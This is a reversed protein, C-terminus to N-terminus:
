NKTDEEDLDMTSTIEDAIAVLETWEIRVLFEDDVQGAKNTKFPVVEGRADKLPHAETYGKLCGKLATHIRTGTGGLAVGGAGDSHVTVSDMFGVRQRHDMDTVLWEVQQDEPLKKDGPTIFKREGRPDIAIGM